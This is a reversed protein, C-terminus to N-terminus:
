GITIADSRASRRLEQPTRGFTKVFSRCMTEASGFGVDQAIKEIPESGEEIRPRAAELRLREVAKAPTTGTATLFIRSFQRLGVGAVDALREVSLPENLHARAHCLVERVRGSSPTMQLMTSYQSQGGLRRHYVVMDRAVDKAVDSGCDDEILALALDIGATL